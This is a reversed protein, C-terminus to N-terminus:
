KLYCSSRNINHANEKFTYHTANIFSLWLEKYVEVNLVGGMFHWSNLYMSLSDGISLNPKPFLHGYDPASGLVVGEPRSGM